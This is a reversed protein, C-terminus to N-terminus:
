VFGKKECILDMQAFFNRRKLNYSVANVNSLIPHKNTHPM